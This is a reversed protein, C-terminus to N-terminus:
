SAVRGLIPWRPIWLGLFVRSCSDLPPAQCPRDAGRRSHDHRDYRDCGRFRIREDTEHPGQLRRGNCCHWNLSIQAFIGRSSPDPHALFYVLSMRLYNVAPIYVQGQVSSSTYIM